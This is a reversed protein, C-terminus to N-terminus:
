KRDRDWASTVCSFIQEHPLNHVKLYLWQLMLDSCPWHRYPIRTNQFAYSKSRQTVSQVADFHCMFPSLKSSLEEFVNRALREKFPSAAGAEAWYRSCLVAHLVPPDLYAQCGLRRQIQHTPLCGDSRAGYLQDSQQPWLWLRCGHDFAPGQYRFILFWNFFM